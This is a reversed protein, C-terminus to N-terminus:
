LSGGGQQYQKWWFYLPHSQHPRYRARQQINCLIKEVAECQPRTTDVWYKLIDLTSVIPLEPAKQTLLAIAAKDDTGLLWQRRLAIAATIAEGSDIPTSSLQLVIHEEEATPTVVQLLNSEIMSDIHISEYTGFRNGPSGTFVRLAEVERVYSAVALSQPLATLLTQMCGSAYLNIVCCADLIMGNYSSALM